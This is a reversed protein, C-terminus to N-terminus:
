PTIRARPQLALLWADLAAPNAEIHAALARAVADRVVTGVEPSALWIRKPSGWRPGALMVHIYAVLGRVLAVSPPVRPRMVISIAHLMERVHVGAETSSGNVFSRVDRAGAHWGIVCEIDVGEASAKVHCPLVVARGDCAYAAIDDYCYRQGDVVVALGPVLGALERCRAAIQASDWAGDEFVSTDPVFAVRTGTRTTAGHAALGGQPKGRAFRQVYEYGAHWSTVVFETALANAVVVGSGHLNPGVHVHPTVGTGAHLTTMIEVIREPEIGRGDDEVVLRLRDVTVTVTRANGRLHEDVANGIVEWALHHMGTSDTGGIYMGPRRRVAALSELMQITDRTYEIGAM